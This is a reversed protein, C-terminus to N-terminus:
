NIVHKDIWACVEEAPNSLSSRDHIRQMEFLGEGNLPFLITTTLEDWSTKKSLIPMLNEMEPTYKDDPIFCGVACANPKGEFTSRYLCTGTESEISKARMNRRIQKKMTEKTWGNITKHM